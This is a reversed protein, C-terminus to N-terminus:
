YQKGEVGLDESYDRGKLKESLLRVRKRIEGMRAVSGAWRKRRSKIVSIINPSPYLNHLEEKHLRRWDGAVEEGKAGFIRWLEGNDLIRWKHEEGLWFSL